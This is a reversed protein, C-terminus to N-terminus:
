CRLRVSTPITLRHPCCRLEAPIKWANLTAIAREGRAGQSGKDAFTAVDASTLADIIGHIRAATLDYTSGPLAASAWM